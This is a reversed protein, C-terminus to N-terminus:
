LLCSFDAILFSGLPLGLNQGKFASEKWVGIGLKALRLQERVKRELSFPSGWERSTIVDGWV